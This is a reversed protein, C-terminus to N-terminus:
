RRLHRGSRGHGAHRLAHDDRRDRGVPRSAALAALILGGSQDLDAVPRRHEVVRERRVGEHERDDRGDRQRGSGALQVPRVREARRVVPWGLCGRRALYLFRDGHRLLASKLRFPSSSIDPDGINEGFDFMAPVTSTQAVSVSSTETPVLWFPQGVSAPDPLPVTGTTALPALSRDWKTSGRTSSTTRADRRHEDGPRPDHDPQGGRATRAPQGAGGSAAVKVANFEIDGTYPDSLENGVPAEAFQVILTWTGPQPDLTNATASLEPTGNLALPAGDVTNQGYGLTDGNPSVLYLGVPDTPDNKLAVNATLDRVGPPVNFEYYEEQGEGPDRGNGGTMIGSFRGIASGRRGGSGRRVDILSRLTVPISTTADHLLPDAPNAYTDGSSSTLSISGSTDGPSPPTSTSVAFSQTQGPALTLTRPRVSAFPAFQQTAVQWTVTGTTGGSAGDIGFIVGTWTGAEPYRVEDTGYNGPGQALSHAAYRGSPDILIMRVRQNLGAECAADICNAQSGPWALQGTLRDAGRPVHFHITAYNDQLGLWDEFQPSTSDTLTVTGGQTNQQPGFTRSSLNVTQPHVGTNTVTVQWHEPTGPDGVASLANTSTLLTDGVPTPSDAPTSVSEALEVAKYSNLLGAGQEDAPYDLDTATSTLIQKVLAPTPTAGGHADRYAQIVLAVAGAVFPSSESTGGNREVDSPATGPFNTCSTFLATNPTCSAWSSDGPAVLSVTGGTEDTGGSSLATINDDLWGTTAFYRAAGYNTQAYWRMDTSGGVAIVNPDTSPSGITNFPGADGTSATVVVGAAVAANDFQKTADLATVDPFPNSGFSENIVNVHDTEVAYNIAQLFNSETTVFTNAADEDFVDLGVLSAGPAVGEIRVYCPSQGQPAYGAVNYVHIGQGAITNADLFAEDGGTPAGPGHGTFDEYDGGTSPDFVSTGNARLFNVNQPDLGDAIWAVKVGAGTIGLSRATPQSPDTSDTSTLALGESDLQPAAPNSSCAGPITNPSLTTTRQAAHATRGQAASATGALSGLSITVDPIVEQVMPNAALRAREAKSVTASFSDVLQFSRIKTAHVQRLQRMLPAQEARIASARAAMARTGVIAPALQGKMIVIVRQNVQRSLQAARSKTLEAQRKTLRGAPGGTARSAAAAVPVLVALISAVVILM